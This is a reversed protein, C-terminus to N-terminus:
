LSNSDLGSINAFNQKITAIDSEDHYEAELENIPKELQRSEQERGQQSHVIQQGLLGVLRARTEVSPLGALQQYIEMAASWKGQRLYLEGLREWSFWIYMKNQRSKSGPFYEEVAEYAVETDLEVAHRYQEIVSGKKDVFNETRVPKFIAAVPQRNANWTGVAVGLFFPIFLAVWFMPKKWVPKVQGMMVTELQRTVALRSETAAAGFGITESDSLKEVLADWDDHDIEIKRLRRILEGASQFRDEPDKAIMKTIIDCLETPVDPRLEGIPRPDNKVHQVAIALANEGDFPPQGALMHYSTIGLSYIDSRSDVQHGEVQEPSMYLPTGLTIGIQTLDTKSKDNNLRALGFDTVKVEGNPALMINEPKIDRHIIEHESSKQLAATVQRMVNIAMIPEAAGYRNLYQKLNQGRVYEQAIFHYGDVQGVEYIQVINAQVLAAAARAENLFRLVYQKDKALEPKLVKFAVQRKLSVQEALFVEAMGGRGLRRLMVYDGLTQGTLDLVENETTNPQNSM